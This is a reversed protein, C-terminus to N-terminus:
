DKTAAQPPNLHSILVGLRGDIDLLQGQGIVAGNARITVGQAIPRDLPLAQGEGLQRLEKLTITKHGLDFSLDVPMQELSLDTDDTDEPTPTTTNMPASVILLQQGDIRATASLYQRTGTRALLLVQDGDGQHSHAMFVLGGPRLRSMQNLDLRTQGICLQLRVPLEDFARDDVDPVHSQALSGVLMLALSDMHVVAPLTQGNSLELELQAAHTAQAPRGDAVETAVLRAQGRGGQGLSQLVWNIIHELAVPRFTEPLESLEPVGLVLSLWRELVWPALDLALQGGAWEIHLRQTQAAHVLAQGPPLPALRLHGSHGGPLGSVAHGQGQTVLAALALAESGTM